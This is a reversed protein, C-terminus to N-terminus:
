GAPVEQVVVERVPEAEESGNTAKVVAELRRIYEGLQANQERLQINEFALAVVVNHQKVLATM